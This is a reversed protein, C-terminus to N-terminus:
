DFIKLGNNNELSAIFNGKYPAVYNAIHVMTQNKM